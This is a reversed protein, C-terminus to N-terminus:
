PYLDLVQMALRMQLDRLRAPEVLRGQPGLWLLITRLDAMGPLTLEIRVRRDDLQTLRTVEYADCLWLASRKLHLVVQVPRSEPRESLTWGGIRESARDGMCFAVIRDLDFRTMTSQDLEHAADRPPGLSLSTTDPAVCRVRAEVVWRDRDRVIRLVDVEVAERPLTSAGSLYSLWVTTGDSALRRLQAVKPPPPSEVVTPTAHLYQVLKHCAQRLNDQHVSPEAQASLSLAITAAVWLRLAQAPSPQWKDLWWPEDVTFSQEDDSIVLGNAVVGHDLSQDGEFLQYEAYAYQKVAQLAVTPKVGGVEALHEFTVPGDAAEGM